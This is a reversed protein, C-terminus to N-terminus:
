SSSIYILHDNSTYLDSYEVPTGDVIKERKGNVIDLILELDYDIDEYPRRGSSIQWLLVGVSFVDSKKDLKRSTDKVISPDLYPLIGFIKSNRNSEEAIRKSLGFDALKINKQHILINGPHKLQMLFLVIM